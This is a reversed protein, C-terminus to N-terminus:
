SLLNEVATEHRYSKRESTAHRGIAAILPIFAVLPYIAVLLWHYWFVRPQPKTLEDLLWRIQLFSLPALLVFTSLVLARSSLSPISTTTVSKEHARLELLVQNWEKHKKKPIRDWLFGILRELFVRRLPDDEHAWADFEFVKGELKKALLKVVTSKGSGWTGELAIAHGGDEALVMGSLASAVREHSGFVDQASPTDSILRTPCRDTEVDDAHTM